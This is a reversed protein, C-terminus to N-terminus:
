SRGRPEERTQTGARDERLSPSNGSLQLIFYVERGLQKYDYYKVVAGFFFRRFAAIIFPRTGEICELNVLSM